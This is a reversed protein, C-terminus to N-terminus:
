PKQFSFTKLFGLDFLLRPKNGEEYGLTYYSIPREAGEVYDITLTENNELTRNFTPKLTLTLGDNSISVQVDLVRIANPSDSTLIEGM